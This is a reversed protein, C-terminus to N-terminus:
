GRLIPWPPRQAFRLSLMQDLIQMRDQEQQAGVNWDAWVAPPPNQPYVEDNPLPWGERFSQYRRNNEFRYHDSSSSRAISSASSSTGVSFSSCDDDDDLDDGDLDDCCDESRTYEWRYQWHDRPTLPRFPPWPCEADGIGCRSSVEEAADEFRMATDAATEIEAM